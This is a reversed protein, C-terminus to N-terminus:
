YFNVKKILNCIGKLAFAVPKEKTKVQEAGGLATNKM